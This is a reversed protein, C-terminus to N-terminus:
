GGTVQAVAGTELCAVSHVLRRSQTQVQTTFSASRLFNEIPFLGGPTSSPALPLLTDNPLNGKEMNESKVASFISAACRASRTFLCGSASEFNM